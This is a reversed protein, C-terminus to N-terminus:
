NLSKTFIYSLCGSQKRIISQGEYTCFLALLLNETNVQLPDGRTKSYLIILLQSINHLREQSLWKFLALRVQLEEIQSFFFGTMNLKHNIQSNSLDTVSPLCTCHICTTYAFNSWITRFFYLQFIFSTSNSFLIGSIAVICTYVHKNTIIPYQTFLDIMKKQM